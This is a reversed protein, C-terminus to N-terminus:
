KLLQNLAEDLNEFKFKYGLEQLRKPIVRTGKLLLEEGMEGFMMKIAFEPIPFITPRHLAKGLAKTFEYNTVPNPAVTNIIGKIENELVFNIIGVIDDIAIWPMWQKGSGIVGGVGLKFPTLMKEIAGGDKALVIGTRLLVVRAFKEAKKAEAEWESCLEALFGVGKPSDETLITDGTSRGYFGEASASIFIKPPNDCQALSEVLIRTGIIRSDRMLKKKAQSWNESAINDGALHLVADFDELKKQESQNFGKESDWQIENSTKPTKRVLTFVDFGKEKFFPILHNGFLGSAGTILIKM